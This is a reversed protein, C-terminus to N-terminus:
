IIMVPAAAARPSSRGAGRVAVLDEQLDIDYLVSVETGTVAVQNLFGRADYYFLVERGVTDVVRSVRPPRSVAAGFPRQHEVSLRNDNLDVIATLLGEGDFHIKEGSPATVTWLDGSM